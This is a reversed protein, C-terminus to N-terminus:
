LLFFFLSAVLCGIGMMIAVTASKIYPYKQSQIFALNQVYRLLEELQQAITLNMRNSIFDEINNFKSMAEVYRNRRPLVAM